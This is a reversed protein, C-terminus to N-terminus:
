ATDALWTHLASKELIDIYFFICHDIFASFIFEHLLHALQTKHRIQTQTVRHHIPSKHLIYEAVGGIDAPIPEVSWGVWSRSNPQLPYLFHISPIAAIIGTYFTFYIIERSENEVANM